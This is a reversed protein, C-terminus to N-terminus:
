YNIGKMRGPNYLCTTAVETTCNGVETISVGMETGEPFVKRDCNLCCRKDVDYESSISWFYERRYATLEMNGLCKFTLCGSCSRIIDYEQYQM